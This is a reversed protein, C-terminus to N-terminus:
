TAHVGWRSSAVDFLRGMIPLAVRATTRAVPGLPGFLAAIESPLDIEAADIANRMALVANTDGEITIDRSFFLADGDLTGHVMALLVAIPGAIRADWTCPAAQRRCTIPEPSDLRLHFRIPIDTPEILVKASAYSGMRDALEPHRHVIELMLHRLAVNAIPMPLTHVGFRVWAPVM